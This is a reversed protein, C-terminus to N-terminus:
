PMLVKDIVHIVGNLTQIDTIIVESDNIFVKGDDISITINEGLLTEVEVGDLGLVDEALYQGSVVHYLLINELNELQLLGNEDEIGELEAILDEFAADTPAFVTFLGPAKLAEELEAKVVAAVLTDFGDANKATEVIDDPRLVGDIIHIVGNSAEVDPTIVEIRDILFVGDDIFITIQQPSLLTERQMGDSLDSSMVKGPVVHYKLINALRPDALLESDTLNLDALLKEFVEDTPAFVTLPGEAQLADLLDAEEAAALLTEFVGAEDATAVIDNLEQDVENTIGTTCATLLFVLALTLALFGVRSLIKKKKM